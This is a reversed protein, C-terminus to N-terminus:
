SSCRCAERTVWWSCAGRAAGALRGLARKTATGITVCASEAIACVRERAALITGCALKLILAPLPAALVTSWPVKLILLPLGSALWLRIGDLKIATTAVVYRALLFADMRSARKPESTM